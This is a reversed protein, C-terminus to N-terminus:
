IESKFEFLIVLRSIIKFKDLFKLSHCSSILFNVVNRM